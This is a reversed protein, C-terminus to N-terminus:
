PIVGSHHHLLTKLKRPLSLKCLLSFLTSIEWPYAGDFRLNLACTFLPLLSEHLRRVTGKMYWERAGFLLADKSAAIGRGRMHSGSAGGPVPVMPALRPLRLTRRTLDDM